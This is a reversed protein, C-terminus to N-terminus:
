KKGGEKKAPAAEKKAPAAEKKAASAPEAAGAAPAAAAGEAGEAAGATETATRPAHIAVITRAPDTLITVGPPATIQSVHLSHGIGVETIDVVIEDPVELALCEIELEHLQQDQVGGDIIGKARGTLVIPAVTHIKKDLRIRLFDAHLITGRVPDHDVKKILAPGNHTAAGAIELEVVAHSGGKGSVIKELERRNLEIGIPEKSEGYVVAPVEGRLRAQRAPGKGSKTRAKVKLTQMKM